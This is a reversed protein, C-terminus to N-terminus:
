IHVTKICILFTLSNKRHQAEFINGEYSNTEFLAQVFIDDQIEQTAMRTCYSLFELLNESIVIWHSQEMFKLKQLM